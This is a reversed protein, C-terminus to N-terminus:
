QQFFFYTWIVLGIKKGVGCLYYYKFNISVPVCAPLSHDLENYTLITHVYMTCIYMYMHEMVQEM